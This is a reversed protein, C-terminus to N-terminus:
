EIWPGIGDEDLLKSSRWLEGSAGTVYLDRGDAGGFCLNSPNAPTPYEAARTRDPGFVAIRPGPGSTGWGCAVLLSGDPAVTMGDVGRHDGFDYMVEYEGLTFDDNIPYARLERCEDPPPMHTQAVFLTKEDASLLVGNPRTTDFTVRRLDWEDGTPVALYVSEHDLELDDREPGYRPDSFWIRGDSDISLDNPSNLRKGEFSDAVVTRSGDEEFRVVARGGDLCAYLGGQADLALGNSKETDELHVECEGTQPDFAMIRSSPIDTFIVRSGDWVPGETFAYPGAVTELDTM